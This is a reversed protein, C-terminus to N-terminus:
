FLLNPNLWNESTELHILLKRGGAVRKIELRIIDALVYDEKECAQIYIETFANLLEPTSKTPLAPLAADTM